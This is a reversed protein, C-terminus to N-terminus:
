KTRRDHLCLYCRDLFEFVHVLSMKRSCPLTSPSFVLWIGIGLFSSVSLFNRLPFLRLFAVYLGHFGSHLVCASFVIYVWFLGSWVQAHVKLPDTLVICAPPSHWPLSTPLRACCQLALAWLGTCPSCLIERNQNWSNLFIDTWQRSVSIISCISWNDCIVFFLTKEFITQFIWQIWKSSSSYYIIVFM